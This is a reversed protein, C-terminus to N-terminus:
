RPATTSAWYTTTRHPRRPEKPWRPRGFALFGRVPPVPVRSLPPYQDSPGLNDITLGERGEQPPHDLAALGPPPSPRTLSRRVAGASPKQCGWGVAARDERGM